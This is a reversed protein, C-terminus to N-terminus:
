TGSHELGEEGTGKCLTLSELDNHTSVIFVPQNSGNRYAPGIVNVYRHCNPCIRQQGDIVCRPGPVPCILRVENFGYLALSGLPLEDTVMNDGVFTSRPSLSDAPVNFIILLRNDGNFGSVKPELGLQKLRKVAAVFYSGEVSLTIRWAKFTGALKPTDAMLVDKRRKEVVSARM